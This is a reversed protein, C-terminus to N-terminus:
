NVFLVRLKKKVPTSFIECMEEATLDSLESCVIENKEVSSNIFCYEPVELSKLTKSEGLENGVVTGIAMAAFISISFVVLLKYMTIEYKREKKRAM